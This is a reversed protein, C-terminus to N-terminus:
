GGLALPLRLSQPHSEGAELEGRNVRAGPLAGDPGGLQGAEHRRDHRREQLLKVIPVVLPEGAPLNVLIPGVPLEEAIATRVAFRGFLDVSPGQREDLLCESVLAQNQGEGM